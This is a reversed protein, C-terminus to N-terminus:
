KNLKKDQQNKDELKMQSMIKEADKTPKILYYGIGVASALYCVFSVSWIRIRDARKPGVLRVLVSM